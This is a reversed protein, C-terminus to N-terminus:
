SSKGQETKVAARWFVLRPEGTPEPGPVVCTSTWEYPLAKMVVIM